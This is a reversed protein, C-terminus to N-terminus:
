GVARILVAIVLAVVIIMLIIVLAVLWRPVRSRTFEFLTDEAYPDMALGNSEPKVEEGARLPREDELEEDARAQPSSDRTKMVGGEGITL